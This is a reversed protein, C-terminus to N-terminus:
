RSGGRRDGSINMDQMGRAASAVPDGANATSAPPTRTSPRSKKGEVAASGAAANVATGPAPMAGNVKLQNEDALAKLREWRSDRAQKREHFQNSDDAYQQSCDDFLTPNVEMFLKMANYVM